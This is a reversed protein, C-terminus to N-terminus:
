AVMRLNQKRASGARTFLTTNFKGNFAPIEHIVFANSKTSFEGIACGQQWDPAGGKVYDPDLRCLCGQETWQRQTYGSKRYTGLRHTHGTIGSIGANMFEAKASAGAGQNARTGHRVLFEPRLLFGAGSHWHIDLEDYGLLQQPKLSSLSRLAPANLEIYTILRSDHNGETEDIWADPAAERIKRRIENSDSIDSQLDDDHQRKKDFHSLNFFDAVDGNIVIRHPQMLEILEYTSEMLAKDQYPVHIDSLFLVIEAEETTSPAVLRAMGTGWEPDNKPPVKMKTLAPVVPERDDEIDVFIDEEVDDDSVTAVINHREWARSISSKTTVVGYEDSLYEATKTPGYGQRYCERLVAIYEDLPSYNSGM